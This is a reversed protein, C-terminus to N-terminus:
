APSTDSLILESETYRLIQCTSIFSFNIDPNDILEIQFLCKYNPTYKFVTQNSLTKSCKNEFKGLDYCQSGDLRKMIYSRIHHFDKIKQIRINTDLIDIIEYLRFNYKPIIKNIIHKFTKVSM